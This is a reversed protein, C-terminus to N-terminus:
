ALSVMGRYTVVVKDGMAPKEGDGITRITKAVGVGGDKSHEIIHVANTNM